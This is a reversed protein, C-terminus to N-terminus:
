IPLFQFSNTAKAFVPSFHHLVLQGICGFYAFDAISSSLLVIRQQTREESSTEKQAISCHVSNNIPQFHIKGNWVRRVRPKM